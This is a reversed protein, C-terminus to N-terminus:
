RKTTATLCDTLYDTIAANDGPVLVVVSVGDEQVHLVCPVNRLIQGGNPMHMTDDSEASEVMPRLMLPWPLQYPRHPNCGPTTVYQSVGSYLYRVADRYEEPTQFLDITDFADRVRPVLSM